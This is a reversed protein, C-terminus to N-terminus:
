RAPSCARPWRRTSSCASARARPSPCSRTRSPASSCRTPRSCRRSRRSPRRGACSARRRLEVRRHPAGAGAGQDRRLDGLGGRRGRRPRALPGPLPRHRRRAPAHPEGRGRAPALRAQPQPARQQRRRRAALGQHLRLPARGLGELARGVVEESHGLGYIPATDVWNIGLEFGRPDHRDVGRRGARGVRAVLRRGRHGLGRHRRPHDADGHPGARRDELGNDDMSTFALM